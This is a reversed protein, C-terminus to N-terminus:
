GGTGGGPPPPPPPPITGEGDCCAQENVADTINEPTCSTFNAGIFLLALLYALKRM